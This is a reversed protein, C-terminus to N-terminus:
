ATKFRARVFGGARTVAFNYLMVATLRILGDKSESYPDVIVQIGDWIPAVAPRRGIARALIAEQSNNIGDLVAPAALHASARVGGSKAQLSDYASVDGQNGRYAAAMIAYTSPLAETRTSAVVMRVDALMAAHIGDVAGNAAGLFADFGSVSNGITDPEDIGALIGNIAALDLGSELADNLNVRLAADMGAFSASDERSYTFSRQLRRPGLANVDFTGATDDVSAGEDAGAPGTAPATMTPFTAQGVPVRPMEVGLFAAVSRPFLVPEIPQQNTGVTAPAQASAAARRELLALPISDGPLEYHAQLEAEAGDQARQERIQDVIRGISAREHLQRLERGESEGLDQHNPDAGEAIIAAQLRPELERYETQLRGLEASEEDTPEEVAALENLRQRIESQRLELRQRNTM